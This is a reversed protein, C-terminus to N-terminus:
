AELIELAARAVAVREAAGASEPRVTVKVGVYGPTTGVAGLTAAIKRQYRSSHSRPTSM